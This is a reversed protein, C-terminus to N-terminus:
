LQENNEKRLFRGWPIFITVLLVIVVTAMVSKGNPTALYASMYGAYPVSLFVKGLIEEERVQRYDVDENADGKTVYLLGGDEVVAEVIRHTTPTPNVETGTFTIIDGVGYEARPIYALVSGTKIVPEMSGSEVVMFEYNDDIPLASGLVFIAALLILTLIVRWTWTFFRKM